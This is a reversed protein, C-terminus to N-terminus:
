KKKKKEPQAQSSGKEMWDQARFEDVFKHSAVFADGCLEEVSPVRGEFKKALARAVEERADAERHREIGHMLDCFVRTDKPIPSLDHCDKAGVMKSRDVVSGAALALVVRLKGESDYARLYTEGDSDVSGGPYKNLYHAVYPKM